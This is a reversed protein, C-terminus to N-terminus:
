SPRRGLRASQRDLSAYCHREPPLNGGRRIRIGFPPLNLLTDRRLTIRVSPGFIEADVIQDVRAVRPRGQTVPNLHDLRLQFGM